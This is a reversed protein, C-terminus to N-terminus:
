NYKRQNETNSKMERKVKRSLRTPYRDSSDKFCIQYPKTTISNIKTCVTIMKLAYPVKKRKSKNSCFIYIIHSSIYM